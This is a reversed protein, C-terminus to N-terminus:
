LYNCNKAPVVLYAESRKKYYFYAGWSRPPAWSFIFVWLPSDMYFFRPKIIRVVNNCPRITIEAPDDILRTLYEFLQANWNVSAVVDEWVAGGGDRRKYGTDNKGIFNPFAGNVYQRQLISKVTDIPVAKNGLLPMVEHLGLLTMGAGAIFQPNKEVRGKRATHYFLRTQPDRMALIYESQARILKAYREDGTSQYLAWIGRLSLGAYLTVYNDPDRCLTSFQYSFGGPAMWESNFNDLVSEKDKLFKKNAALNESWRSLLWEGVLLAREVFEKKGTVDYVAILAEVAMTNFNVVFRDEDPSYFDVETFKFAGEREVWLIDFWYRRVHDETIEIYRKRKDDDVIDSIGLLACVALACSVLSQFREDEHGTHHWRGTNDDYRDALLDAALIMADYWRAEGSKRYLNGYGRVVASQTWATDHVSGMRKTETRHVVFGNYAGNTARWTELWGILDGLKETVLKQDLDEKKTTNSM